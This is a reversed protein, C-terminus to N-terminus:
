WKSFYVCLVRKDTTQGLTKTSLLDICYSIYIMLLYMKQVFCVDHLRIWPRSSHLHYYYKINIENEINYNIMSSNVITLIQSLTINAFVVVSNYKLHTILWDNYKVWVESMDWEHSVLAMWNVCHARMILYLKIGMSIPVFLRRKEDKVILLM